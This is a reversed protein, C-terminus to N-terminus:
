KLVTVIAAIMLIVGAIPLNRKMKNANIRLICIVLLNNCSAFM